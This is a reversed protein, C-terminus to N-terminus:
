FEKFIEQEKKSLPAYGGKTEKDELHDWSEFCSADLPNTLQPVWPAKIMRKALKGFNIDKMFPHDKIDREAYALCGLRETVKNALMGTILSQSSESYGFKPFRYRGHVIRKFLTIQDINDDYFPTQGGIMEYILCGLSWYDACKDHGRSLIVEPALDTTPLKLPQPPRSLILCPLMHLFLTHTRKKSWCFYGTNHTFEICFLWDYIYMIERSMVCVKENKSVFHRVVFLILRIV